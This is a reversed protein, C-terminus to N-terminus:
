DSAAATRSRLALAEFPFRASPTFNMAESAACCALLNGLGRGFRRGLIERSSGEDLLNAVDGFCSCVMGIGRGRERFPCTMRGHLSISGLLESDM